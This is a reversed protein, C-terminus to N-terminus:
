PFSPDNPLPPMRRHNTRDFDDLEFLPWLDGNAHRQAQNQVYSVVKGLSRKGFSLVGYESQWGFTFLDSSPLSLNVHRSTGGKLKQASDSISSSPPVSIALHMHDPMFGLAHPIWGLENCLSQIRDGILEAIKADIVAERRKTTWVFHYYLWWFSVGNV